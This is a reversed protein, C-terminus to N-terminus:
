PVEVPHAATGPPRELELGGHQRARDLGFPLIMGDPLVWLHRMNASNVIRGDPPYLELAEREGLGVAAKVWQLLDWSLGDRADLRQVMLLILGGPRDCEFVLLAENRHMRRFGLPPSTPVAELEADPVLHFPSRPNGVKLKRRAREQARREARSM